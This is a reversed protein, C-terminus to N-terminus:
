AKKIFDALAERRSRYNWASMCTEGKGDSHKHGWYGGFGQPKWGHRKMAAQFQKTTLDKM